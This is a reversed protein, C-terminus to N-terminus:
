GQNFTWKRVVALIQWPLPQDQTIVVVSDGDAWGLNEIKKFGTFERPPQDFHDQSFQRFSLVQGNVKVGITDLLRVYIEGRDMASAQASGMQGAVEPPLLKITSTYHLGIEVQKAPRTLTIQGGAVAQPPMVSGDAVIDVTKGELHALGAWVSSGGPSAGTIGADTNLSRDFREVYRVTSGGVTRRVIAWTEDGEAAPITAVSEFAGDTTQRAWGIVDQDRDYTSTALVGDDRVAFILKGPDDQWTMSSVGARILHEALVSMDPAAWRGLEESYGVARVSRGTRQVFLEENGVRLPRVQKCGFNSRPKVRVNTPTIPKEIGGEVTFEGGYTMVVLSEMAALYLIPNVYDSALDYQFAEDDNTGLQFVFYEGVNSGWVRQPYAPSGAAFLRQQFFTGTGPYGDTANWVSHEITWADPAADVTSALEQEVIGRAEKSNIVQTIRVLGGNIRVFGGVDSFRFVDAQTSTASIQKAVTGPDVSTGPNNALAYAFTDADYVYISFVGNYGAQDTDAIQVVDGSVLGHATRTATVFGGGWALSAIDYATDFVRDVSASSTLSIEAGVPGTASPVLTARPSGLMRWDGGIYNASDFAATITATVNSADLYDTIVASGIGAVITRGVDSDYFSNVAMFNRGAGPGTGGTITLPAAFTIGIEDFPVPDFPASDLIWNDDGFRRLRQPFVDQHWLFMTDAGQTYDIADLMDASYPTAIEYVAPGGGALVQGDPKFVRMYLHGFELIYAQERNFIFPILRSRQNGFKAPAVFATGWRRAAGGWLEPWANEIIEAGNAYRAVDVRGRMKPTLEGATFNTQAYTIKPM